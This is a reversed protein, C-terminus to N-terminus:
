ENPYAKNVIKLLEKFIKPNGAVINNRACYAEKGCLDSVLGGAEKILLVGAALDWISLGIEILGDFRGAALYALDLAASGCRRLGAVHPTLEACAKMFGPFYKSANPAFAYGILAGDITKQSSLRIRRANCYAGGGRSATFLEQRLPDYILGYKTKGRYQMAISTSFHPLGHIFNTTGDLPDIIWVYDNDGSAGSEEGLFAHDPYAKHIIKIIEQEARQDVDTVFDNHEKESIKVKDIRDYAQLIIKGASRAAKLAINLFPNLM